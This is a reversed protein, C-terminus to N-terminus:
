TRQYHGPLVGKAAICVGSPIGLYGAPRFRELRKCCGVHDEERAPSVPSETDLGATETGPGVSWGLGLLFRGKLM